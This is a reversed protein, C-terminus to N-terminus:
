VQKVEELNFIKKLPNFVLNHVDRKSFKDKEKFVLILKGKGNIFIFLNDDEYVEKIIDLNFRQKIKILSSPPINIFYDSEINNCDKQIEWGLYYALSFIKQIYIDLELSDKEKDQIQNLVDSVRIRENKKLKKKVQNYAKIIIFYLHNQNIQKKFEQDELEKVFFNYGFMFLLEHEGINNKYYLVDHDVLEEERLKDCIVSLEDLSFIEELIKTRKISKLLYSKLAM